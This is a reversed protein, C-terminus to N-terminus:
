PPAAAEPATSLLARTLNASVSEEWECESVPPCCGKGEEEAENMEQKFLPLLIRRPLVRECVTRASPVLGAGDLRPLSVKDRGM